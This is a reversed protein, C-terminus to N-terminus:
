DSRFQTHIYKLYAKSDELQLSSDLSRVSEFGLRRATPSHILETSRNLEKVQKIAGTALICFLKDECLGSVLNANGLELCGHCTWSMRRDIFPRTIKTDTYSEWIHGILESSIRVGKTNSLRQTRVIQLIHHSLKRLLESTTSLISHGWPGTKLGTLSDSYTFKILVHKACPCLVVAENCATKRDM